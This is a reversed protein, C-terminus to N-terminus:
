FSAYANSLNLRCPTLKKYSEKLLQNRPHTVLLIGLTLSHKNVTCVKHLPTNLVILDFVVKLYCFNRKLFELYHLLICM